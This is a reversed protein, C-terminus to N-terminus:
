SVHLAEKRDGRDRRADNESGGDRRRRLARRTGVAREGPGPEDREGVHALAPVAAIPAPEIGPPTFRGGCFYGKPVRERRRPADLRDVALDHEEREPHRHRAVLERRELSAGVAIGLLVRAEDDDVAGLVAEVRPARTRLGREPVVGVLAEGGGAYRRLLDLGYPQLLGDGALLTAEGLSARPSWDSRRAIM